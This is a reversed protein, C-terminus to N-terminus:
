RTRTSCHLSNTYYDMNKPIKGQDQMLTLTGDPNVHVSINEEVQFNSPSNADPTELQRSFVVVDGSREVKSTARLETNETRVEGELLQTKDDSFTLDVHSVVSALNVGLMIVRNDDPCYDDAKNDQPLAHDAFTSLAGSVDRVLDKCRKVTVADDITRANSVGWNQPLRVSIQPM